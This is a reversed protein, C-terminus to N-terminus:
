RNNMVSEVLPKTESKRELWPPVPLKKARLFEPNFLTSQYRSGHDTLITVIVHGPGLDRALRVAGAVNIASSGGVCLGEHEFLDFVYPVAESDPILYAKGAQIDAVIPTVRGLGIGETISGGESAKAEGRTFFNYMAAGHPDAVGIV